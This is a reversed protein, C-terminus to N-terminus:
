RFRVIEDSVGLVTLLSSCGGGGVVCGSGMTCGSALSSIFWVVFIRCSWLAGGISSM